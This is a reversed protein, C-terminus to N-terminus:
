RSARKKIEQNQKNWKPNLWDNVNDYLLQFLSREAVTFRAQLTMGKKLNGKYGNELKLYTQDLSVRVIFVPQKNILTVDNSIEKVEGKLLGWQNYDFASVQLRANMGERILGINRPPIYCEAILGTDPSIEALVQNPYVPSGEYIGKMNQITGSIPAKLIYRRRDDSLQQKDTALQDLKNEYSIQDGQWSNMQQKFTLEFSNKAKIFAFLSKEYNAESIVKRQYLQSKRIYKRKAQNVAQLKDRLQQRFQLLSQRYKPTDLDLSQFVTTSDLKQLLNLDYLYEGIEQQRSSNFQLKELLRPSSIEVIKEGREVTANEKIYLNNIKGSVLSSVKNRESIPQIVGQSKVSVDVYIYPLAMLAILLFLIVSIYILKTNISHKYFNSEASNDIIENPFLKNSSM